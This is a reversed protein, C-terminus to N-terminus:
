TLCRGEPKRAHCAKKCSPNGIGTTRRPPLFPPGGQIGTYREGREEKETARKVLRGCRCACWAVEGRREAEVREAEKEKEAKGGSGTRGAMATELGQVLLRGAGEGEAVSVCVRVKGEGAAEKERGRRQSAWGERWLTM